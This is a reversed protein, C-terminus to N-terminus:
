ACISGSRSATPGLQCHSTTSAGISSELWSKAQHIVGGPSREYVAARYSRMPVERASTSRAHAEPEYSPALAQYSGWCICCKTKVRRMLLAVERLCGSDDLGHQRVDGCSQHSERLACHEGSDDHGLRSDVDAFIRDTRLGM